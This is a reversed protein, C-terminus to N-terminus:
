FQGVPPNMALIRRMGADTPLLLASYASTHKLYTASVAITSLTGVIFGRRWYLSVTFHVPDATYLTANVMGDAFKIKHVSEHHALSYQISADMDDQAAGVSHFVTVYLVTKLGIPGDKRNFPLTFQEYAGTDGNGWQNLGPAVKVGGFLYYAPAVDKPPLADKVAAIPTLIRKEAAHANAPLSICLAAVLILARKFM